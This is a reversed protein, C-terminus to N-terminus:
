QSATASQPTVIQWSGDDYRIACSNRALTPLTSTAVRPAASAVNAACRPISVPQYGKEAMCIDMVRRRLDQNVDVSYLGGDVWYGPNYYCGNGTCYRNGPFYVPPRQRIENAVPADRLADVECRTADTQMRSVEAGPRYYLSLPGCAGVMMGAVIIRMMLKM